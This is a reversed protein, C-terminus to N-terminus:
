GLQTSHLPCLVKGSFDGTWGEATALATMRHAWDEVPDFAPQELCPEFIRFCGLAQCTILLEGFAQTEIASDIQFM